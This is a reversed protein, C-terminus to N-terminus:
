EELVTDTGDFAPAYVALAAFDEAGEHPMIRYATMRPLVVASGAQVAYRTEEVVVVAHGRLVCLTLDHAEHYRKALKTGRALQLLCVTQTGGQDFVQFSHTAGDGLPALDSQPSFVRNRPARDALAQQRETMCGALTLVALALAVLRAMEQQEV